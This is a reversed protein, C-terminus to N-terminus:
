AGGGGEGTYLTTVNGRICFGRLQLANKFLARIWSQMVAYFAAPRRRWKM